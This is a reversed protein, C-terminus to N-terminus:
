YKGTKENKVDGWLEIQSLNHTYRIDAIGELLSGILNLSHHPKIDDRRLNWSFVGNANDGRMGTYIFKYRQRAVELGLRSFSKLNGFPFAFHEIKTNLKQELLDASDIIETELKKINTINALRAHTHTHSGITHGTSLLWALDDWTLSRSNPVIACGPYIHREVFAYFDSNEKLSVFAPVVFFLAKIGIPNLVEETVRRCSVFGDDFTLLLNAGKIPADGLIMASFEEPSVFKWYRSLYHIQKVFEKQEQLPIDHYHIVRLRADSKIGIYRLLDNSLHVPRYAAALISHHLSM